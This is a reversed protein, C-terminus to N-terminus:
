GVKEFIKCGIDYISKVSLNNLMELIDTTSTKSDGGDTKGELLKECGRILHQVPATLAKTLKLYLHANTKNKSLAEVLEASMKEGCFMGSDIKFEKFKRRITYLLNTCDQDKFFIAIKQGKVGDYLGAFKTAKLSQAMVGNGHSVVMGCTKVAKRFHNNQTAKVREQDFLVGYEFDGVNKATKIGFAIKEMRKM